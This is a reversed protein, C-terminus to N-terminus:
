YVHHRKGRLSSKSLSSLHVWLLYGVAAAAERPQKAVAGALDAELHVRRPPGVDRGHEPVDAHIPHGEFRDHRSVVLPPKLEDPLADAGAM